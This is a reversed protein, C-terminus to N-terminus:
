RETELVRLLGTCKWEQGYAYGQLLVEYGFIMDEVELKRHAVGPRSSPERCVKSNM